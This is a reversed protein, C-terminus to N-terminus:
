RASRRGWQRRVNSCVPARPMSPAISPRNSRPLMLACGTPRPASGRRDCWRPRAVGGETVRGITLGNAKAQSDGVAVVWAAGIPVEVQKSRDQPDRWKGYFRPGGAKVKVVVAGEDGGSNKIAM